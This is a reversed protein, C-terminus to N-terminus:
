LPLWLIDMGLCQQVIDYLVVSNSAYGSSCVFADILSLAVTAAEASIIEVVKHCCWHGHRHCHNSSFADMSHVM